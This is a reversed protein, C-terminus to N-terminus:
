RLLQAVCICCKNLKTPDLNPIAIIQMLVNVFKVHDEKSFKM